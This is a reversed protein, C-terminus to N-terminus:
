SKRFEMINNDNSETKTNYVETINQGILTAQMTLPSQQVKEKRKPLRSEKKTTM